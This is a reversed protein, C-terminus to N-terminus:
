CSLEQHNSFIIIRQQKLTRTWFHDVEDKEQLSPNAEIKFFSIM